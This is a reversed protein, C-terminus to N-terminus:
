RGVQRAVQSKGCRPNGSVYITVVSADKNNRQLDSFKQTIDDVEVRREVVKHSPTQSLIMLPKPKGKIEDEM